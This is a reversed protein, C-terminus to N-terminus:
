PLRRQPAAVPPALADQMTRLKLCTERYEAQPESAAVIGCGAFLHARDGRLLASRLAVCFEADGAADLWGVPAAYWGRDMGEHRRIYDLAAERPLGGVAPTPHLAAVLDLIDVGARLRGRVPTLLHQVRALRHLRPLAEIDLRECYPALAERLCEVVLAHEHRDKASNLLATGLRADEQPTAGRALTGALAVTDLEGGAVRLLREPTAGLFCAGGRDFAFLCATPGAQALRELVQGCPFGGVAQLCVERALVVKRLGGQAIHAVAAAVRAQWDRADLTERAVPAQALAPCRPRHLYRALLTSWEARLERVAADVDADPELWRSFSLFSRGARRLYLIRPLVLSTAAFARWHPATPAQADFAFGGCLRPPCPGRWAMRALLERWIDASAAFRGAAPPSVEQTCGFGAMAETGEEARWLLSQGFVQRNAAFLRMADLEACATTGVALVPWGQERAQRAAAAFAARLEDFTDANM